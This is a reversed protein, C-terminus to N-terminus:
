PSPPDFGPRKPSGVVSSHKLATWRISPAWSVSRAQETQACQFFLSPPRSLIFVAFSQSGDLVREWQMAIEGLYQRGTSDRREGAPERSAPVEKEGSNWFGKNQTSQGFPCGLAAFVSEACIAFTATRVPWQGVAYFRSRAATEASVLGAPGMGGEGEGGNWRSVWGAM